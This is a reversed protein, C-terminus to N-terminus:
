SAVYQATSQHHIYGMGNSNGSYANYMNYTNKCGLIEQTPSPAGQSSADSDSSSSDQDSSGQDGYIVGISGEEGIRYSVEAPDIWMTLESPLLSLLQRNHIGCLDGAKSILPDMKNNVIRICRYGSGKFPKEPFWHNDYHSCLVNQVCERFQEVQEPNNCRNRILNTLFGAASGVEIHM